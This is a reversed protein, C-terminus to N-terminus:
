KLKKNTFVYLYILFKNIYNKMRNNQYINAIVNM